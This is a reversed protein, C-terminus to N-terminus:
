GQANKQPLVARGRMVVDAGRLLAPRITQPADLASGGVQQEVDFSTTDQKSAKPDYSCVTIDYGSLVDPLTEEMRVRLPFFEAGQLASQNRGYWGLLDQFLTLVDRHDEIRPVAARPRAAEELRGLETVAMDVAQCLDDLFDVSMAREIHMAERASEASPSTATQASTAQEPSATRKPLLRNTALGLGAGVAAGVPSAAGLHPAAITGVVAAAAVVASELIHPDPPDQPAVQRRDVESQTVLPPTLTTAVATLVERVSTLFDMVVRAQTPTLGQVFDNELQAAGAVVSELQKVFQQPSESSSLDKRITDRQSQYYSRLTALASRRM